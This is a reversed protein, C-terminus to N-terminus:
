ALRVHYLYRAHGGKDILDLVATTEGYHMLDANGEADFADRLADASAKSRQWFQRDSDTLDHVTFSLANAQLAHGLKTEGPDVSARADGFYTFFLGMQGGPRLSKKFQGITATLDKPFYLSEIAIVADFSAPMDLADMDQVEFTVRGQASTSVVERARRIAAEHRDIGTFRGGTREALYMTTQGTGCGADLVDQGADLALVCALLELQTMDATGYQNLMRGYVRECYQIFAPSRESRLYCSEKAQPDAAM